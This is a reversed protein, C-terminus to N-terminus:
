SPAAYCRALRAYFHQPSLRGGRLGAIVPRRPELTGFRQEYVRSWNSLAASARLGLTRHHPRGDLARTAYHVRASDGLDLDAWDLQLLEAHRIFSHLLLAVVTHDRTALFLETGSSRSARLVDLRRLAKVGQAVPLRRPHTPDFRPRSAGSLDCPATRNRHLYAAWTRLADVRRAKTSPAYAQEGLWEVYLALVSQAHAPGVRLLGLVMAAAHGPPITSAQVPGAGLLFAAFLRLDGVYARKTHRSRGRGWSRLLARVRNLIAPYELLELQCNHAPERDLLASLQAPEAPEALEAPEGLSSEEDGTQPRRRCAATDVRRPGTPM